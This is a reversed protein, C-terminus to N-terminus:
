KRGFMTRYIDAARTTGYEQRDRPLDDISVAESDSAPTDPRKKNAQKWDTVATKFKDGIAQSVAQDYTLAPNSALADSVAKRDVSPLELGLADAIASMQHVAIQADVNSADLYPAMRAIQDNVAKQALPQAIASVSEDFKALKDIHPRLVAEYGTPEYDPDIGAKAAPDSLQAIVDAPVGMAELLQAALGAAVAQQAILSIPDDSTQLARSFEYADREEPTVSELFSEVPSKTAETTDTTTAEATAVTTSDATEATEKAKFRGDEGRERGADEAATEDQDEGTYVESEDTEDRVDREERDDGWHSNPDEQIPPLTKLYDAVPGTPGAPEAVATDAM